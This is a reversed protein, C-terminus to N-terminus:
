RVWVTVVNSTRAKYASSAYNVAKYKMSRRPQVTTSYWGTPSLSTTRRVYVWRGGRAPRQYFKVYRGTVPAAATKLHGYIM